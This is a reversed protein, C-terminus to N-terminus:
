IFEPKEVISAGNRYIDDTFISELYQQPVSEFFIKEKYSRPDRTFTALFPATYKAIDKDWLAKEHKELPELRLPCDYGTGFRYREPFRAQFNAILLLSAYFSFRPDNLYPMFNGRVFRWDYSEAQQAVIKPLKLRYVYTDGRARGMFTTEWEMHDVKMEYEIGDNSLREMLQSLHQEQQHYTPKLKDVSAAGALM